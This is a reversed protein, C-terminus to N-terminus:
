ARLKADYSGRPYAHKAPFFMNEAMEEGLAICGCTPCWWVFHLKTSHFLQMPHEPDCRGCYPEQGQWWFDDKILKGM